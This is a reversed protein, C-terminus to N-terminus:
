CRGSMKAYVLKPKLPDALGLTALPRKLTNAWPFARPEGVAIHTVADQLLDTIRTVVRNDRPTILVLQNGLLNRKTGAILLHKQALAEMQSRGASLFL